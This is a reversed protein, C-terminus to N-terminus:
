PSIGCRCLDMDFEKVKNLKIYIIYKRAMYLFNIMITDISHHFLM